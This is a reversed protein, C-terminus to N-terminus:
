RELSDNIIKIIGEISNFRYNELLAPEIQISFINEVEFFLYALNIADFNWSTSTLPIDRGRAWLMTLAVDPVFKEFISYLKREIETENM